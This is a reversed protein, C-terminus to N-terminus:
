SIDLLETDAKLKTLIAEHKEFPFRDHDYAVQDPLDSPYEVLFQANLHKRLYRPACAFFHNIKQAVGAAGILDPAARMQIKLHLLKDADQTEQGCLETVQQKLSRNEEELTVLHAQMAIVSNLVDNMATKLKHDKSGQVLDSATKVASVMSSVLNSAAAVTQLTMKLEEKEVVVEPLWQIEGALAERAHGPAGDVRVGRGAM